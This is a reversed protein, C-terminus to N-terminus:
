LGQFTQLFSAWLFAMLLYFLYFVLASWALNAVTWVVKAFRSFARSAWLAPLGLFLTVFFLMVLVLWRKDVFRRLNQQVPREPAGQGPGATDSTDTM